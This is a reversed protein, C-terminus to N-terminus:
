DALISLLISEIMSGVHDSFVGRGAQALQVFFARDANGITLSSPTTVFLTSVTRRESEAVFRRTRDLTEAQVHLHAAADGVVVIAQRASPRLPMAMATYLGLRVEEQIPHSGTRSARLDRFFRLIQELEHRTSTLSLTLLVPPEADWDRYAVIGIRVSSTLRELIRVISAMSRALELLVPTMSATTDVVFVLDLEAVVPPGSPKAVPRRPPQVAAQKKLADAQAAIKRAEALATAAKNTEEDLRTEVDQLQAATESTAMRMGELEAQDDFSNRYYPMLVVILLVFVGTACALADLASLSFLALSRDVRKM